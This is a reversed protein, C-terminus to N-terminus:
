KYCGCLTTATGGVESVIGIVVGGIGILGQSNGCTGGDTNALKICYPKAAPCGMVPSACTCCKQSDTAQNSTVASVFSSTDGKYCLSQVGDNNASPTLLHKGGRGAQLTCQQVASGAPGSPGAGDLAISFASVKGLKCLLQLFNQLVLYAQRSSIDQYCFLVARRRWNLSLWTRLGSHMCSSDM